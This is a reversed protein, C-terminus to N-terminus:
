YVPITISTLSLSRLWFVAGLGYGDQTLVSATHSAAFGTLGDYRGATGANISVSSTAAGNNPNFTLSTAGSDYTFSLLSGDDNFNVMGSGGGVITETGAFSATWSWENLNISKLFEMTLTHQGGQSDYVTISTAHTTDATGIVATGASLGNISGVEIGGSGLGDIGTALGTTDDVIINLTEAAMATGGTPTFIDNCVFTHDTGGNAELTSGDAVGFIVGVINGATAV